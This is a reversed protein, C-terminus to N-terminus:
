MQGWKYLDLVFSVAFGTFHEKVTPTNIALTIVSSLVVWPTQQPALTEFLDM